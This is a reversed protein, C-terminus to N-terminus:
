CFNPARTPQSTTFALDKFIDVIESFFPSVVPEINEKEFYGPLNLVEENCIDSGLIKGCIARAKTKGNETFIEFVVIAMRGDPLTVMKQIFNSQRQLSLM